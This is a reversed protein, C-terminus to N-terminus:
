EGFALTPSVGAARYGPILVMLVAIGVVLALSGVAVPLGFSYAVPFGTVSQLARDLLQQGYLGFAAGIGAGISLVLAMELVLARWLQGRSVGDLKLSAMRRRRQWIAGGMAAAMALAAAVLVLTSIQTLRALGDRAASRYGTEREAATEVTLGSEPGLVREVLRKGDALSGDHVDVLLATVDTSAWVVRYDDANVLVAGPAWGLNTTIAAVRFERPHPGELTFPDGVTLGHEAAIAESVTAWGGARIQRTVTSWDGRRLQDRPVLHAADEPPAVVWTRRDGIDLFGGRYLRVGDVGPTRELQAAVDPAFATAPITGRTGAPTVWLETGATLEQFVGDLGRQLDRHSGEVATSGLVAIAAISALAVSRSRTSSLEGVALLPVVGRGRRRLRDAGKLTARLMPPLGLLMAAILTVMGLMALEPIAILIVTTVALSALGGGVLVPAPLRRRAAREDLSEEQVADMADSSRLSALPALAATLAALTGAAIALVIPGATVTRGTGVPFAIALYGPAPDFLNRSLLEGLALGAASAMVGLVVADFFLVQVVTRLGFGSLRLEVVLERRARSTLLMANFAFLFGVLASIGAFLATSRDNPIAAQAFVRREADAPRVDLRGTALRRLARDVESIRRPDAHVYVHSVLGEHRTVLQGLRLPLVALPSDALPGVDDRTVVAAVPLRESRGGVQLTVEDGLRVGLGRAVSAALAMGGINELTEADHRHLLAGGLKAMRTDAAIVRVAREKGGVKLNAQAQLSPAVLRVGPVQEIERTLSEAFGHPGRAELQLQARGISGSAVEDMSSRLSVSSVQAAFLLAVGVAIGVLALLEQVLRARLRRRYFYLLNRLSV